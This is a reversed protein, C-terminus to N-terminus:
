APILQGFDSYDGNIQVIYNKGQLEVIDGARLPTMAQLRASEEKDKQTYQLKICASKQMIVIGEEKGGDFVYGTRKREQGRSNKFAFTFTNDQDQINTRFNLKITM